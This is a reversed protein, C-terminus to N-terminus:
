GCDRRRNESGTVEFGRRARIGGRLQEREAPIAPLECPQHHSERFGEVVKLQRTQAQQHPAPLPTSPQPVKRPAARAPTALLPRHGPRRHRRLADAHVPPQHHNSISIHLRPQTRQTREPAKSGHDLSKPKSLSPLAKRIMNPSIRFSCVVRKPNTGSFTRLSNPFVLCPSFFIINITPGLLLRMWFGFM